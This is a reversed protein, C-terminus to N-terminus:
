DDDGRDRRAQALNKEMTVLQNLDYGGLPGTQLTRHVLDAAAVPSAMVSPALPQLDKYVRVVDQPNAGKFRPDTLLRNLTDHFAATDLAATLRTEPGPLVAKRARELVAEHRAQDRAADVERMRTRFQDFLGFTGGAPRPEAGPPRTGAALVGLPPTKRLGGVVANVAGLGSGLGAEKQAPPAPLPVTPTALLRAFEGVLALAPHDAPVAPDAAARKLPPAAEEDEDDPLVRSRSVPRSLLRKAGYFGLGAAGGLGLALTGAGLLGPVGAAVREGFTAAPPLQAVLDNAASSAQDMVGDEAAKGYVVADLRGFLPAEIGPFRALALARVGEYAAPAMEGVLAALKLGVRTLAFAVANPDARDDRRDVAALEAAAKTRADAAAKAYKEEEEAEPAAPVKPPPPPTTPPAHKYDDDSGGVCSHEAVKTVGLLVKLVGEASAVPYGAAKEWPDNSSALQRAARGTNYGRVLLPVFRAHLGVEAAAKALAADPAEGADVRDAAAELAAELRDASAASLPVPRTM